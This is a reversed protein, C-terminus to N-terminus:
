QNKPRKNYQNRYVHRREIRLRGIKKGDDILDIENAKFGGAPMPWKTKKILPILKEEWTMEMWPTQRVIQLFDRRSPAEGFSIETVLPTAGREIILVWIEAEELYEIM